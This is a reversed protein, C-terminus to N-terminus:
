SYCNLFLIYHNTYKIFIHSNPNLSFVLQLSMPLVGRIFSSFADSSVPQLIKPLASNKFWALRDFISRRPFLLVLLQELSIPGPPDITSPVAPFVPIPSERTATEITKFRYYDYWFCLRFFFLAKFISPALNYLDQLAM